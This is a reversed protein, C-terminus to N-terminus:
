KMVESAGADDANQLLEYLVTPGEVYQDIVHRLRTTLVESQGFVSFGSSNEFQYELTQSEDSVLIDRRSSIRLTRAVKPSIEPHLFSVDLNKEAWWPMDDLILHKSSRLLGNVDPLHIRACVQGGCM